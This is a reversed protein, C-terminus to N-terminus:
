SRGRRLLFRAINFLNGLAIIVIALGLGFTMAYWREDKLPQQPRPVNGVTFVVAESTAEPTETLAAAPLPQATATPVPTPAIETRGGEEAAEVTAAPDGEPTPTAEDQLAYAVKRIVRYPQQGVRRSLVRPPRDDRLSEPTPTAEEDGPPTPTQIELLSASVWGISGDGLLINLWTGDENPGLVLIETGPRLTSIPQFNTGPGSRVNVAQSSIVVAVPLPTPSPTYTATPTPTFTPTSTPTATDTATPTPSATPSPTATATATDTPLAEETSEAPIPSSEGPAATASPPLPSPTSTPPPTETPLEGYLLTTLMENYTYADRYGVLLGGAGGAASVYPEALPSASYSSAVVFPADTLPLVQEAWARLLDSSDSIVVVLAFDDVSAVRLGTERGRLDTRALAPIDQGLSRLGVIGATLYRVVYYDQNAALPQSGRGTVFLFGADAGTGVGQLINSAHLLGTPNSGLLVPRAGRSLIHRLLAETASDLEAATTPGYEIGVLALDGPRLNNVADFANQQPSAAAFQRPPLSGIGVRIFFPLGVGFLLLVAIVLQDLRVVVRRRQIKRPTVPAASVKAVEVHDDEWAFDAPVDTDPAAALRTMHGGVGVLEKLLRARERQEPTLDVEEKLVRSPKIEIPAPALPNKVGPLLRAVEAAAGLATESVSLSRGRESLEQLREPLEELPRDDRQRVLATASEESVTAGLGELWDPREAALLDEELDADPAATIAAERAEDYSEFAGEAFLEDFETNTALSLEDTKPLQVESDDLTALFSDIDQFSLEATEPPKTSEIVMDLEALFSAEEPIPPLEDDLDDAATRDLENLWDLDDGTASEAEEKEGFQAYWDAPEAETEEPKVIGMERLYGTDMQAIPSEEAEPYDEDYFDEFEAFEGLEADGFLDEELEDAEELLSEDLTFADLAAEDTFDGPAEGARLSDEELLAAFEDDDLAFGTLDLEEPEAEPEAQEAEQEGGAASPQPEEAFLDDDLSFASMDPEAAFPEEDSEPEEFLGADEGFLADYSDDEAGALAPQLEFDPLETEASAEASAPESSFWDPEEVEVEATFWDPAATQDLELGLDAPLETELEDGVLDFLDPLEEGEAPVPEATLDEFGPEEFTEGEDMWSPLAPEEDPPGFDDEFAGYDQEDAAYEAEFEEAESLWGEDSGMDSEIEPLLADDAQDYDAEASEAFEDAESLWGPLLEEDHAAEEEPAEEAEASEAFEDAESLWDPLAEAHAGSDFDDFPEDYSEAAGSEELPETPLGQLWPPLEIEGPPPEPEADASSYFASSEPFPPEEFAEFSQEEGFDDEAQGFQGALDREVAGLQDEFREEVSQWDLQGTLGTREQRPAGEGPEAGQWDFADQEESAGGEPSRDEDQLWSLQGTVGTRPGESAAPEDAHDKLWDLDDEPEADHPGEDDPDRLWDLDDNNDYNDSM